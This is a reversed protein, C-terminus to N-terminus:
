IILRCLSLSLTPPPLLSSRLPFLSPLSTSTQLCQLLAMGGAARLNNDSLDLTHLNQALNFTNGLATMERPGIGNNALNLALGKIAPNKFLASLMATLVSVPMGLGTCSFVKLSHTSDIYQVVTDPFVKDLRNNSIDLYELEQCLHPPSLSLSLSPPSVYGKLRNFLVGLEIGTNALALRRLASYAHM